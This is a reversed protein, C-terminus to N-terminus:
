CYPTLMLGLVLLVYWSFLAGFWHRRRHWCGHVIGLWIAHHFKWIHFHSRWLVSLSTGNWLSICFSPGTWLACTPCFCYTKFDCRRWELQWFKLFSLCVTRLTSQLPHTPALDFAISRLGARMTDHVGHPGSTSVVRAHENKSSEFGKIPAIDSDLQNHLTMFQYNALSSIVHVVSKSRIRFNLKLEATKECRWRADVLMVM